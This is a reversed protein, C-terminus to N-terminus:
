KKIHWKEESFQTFYNTIIISFTPIDENNLTYLQGVKGVNFIYYVPEIFLLLIPLGLSNRNGYGLQMVVFRPIDTYIYIHRSM